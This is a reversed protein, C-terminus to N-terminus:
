NNKEADRKAKRAKARQAQKCDYCTDSANKNLSKPFPLKCVPCTRRITRAIRAKAMHGEKIKFSDM